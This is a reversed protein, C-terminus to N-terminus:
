SIKSFKNISRFKQFKMVQINKVFVMKVGNKLIVVIVVDEMSKFLNLNIDKISRWTLANWAFFLTIRMSANTVNTPEIGEKSYEEVYDVKLKPFRVASISFNLFIASRNKAKMQLTLIFKYFKTIIICIRITIILIM